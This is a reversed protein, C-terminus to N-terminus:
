LERSAVFRFRFYRVQGVIFVADKVHYDLKRPLLLSEMYSRVAIKAM